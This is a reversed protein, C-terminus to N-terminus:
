ESFGGAGERTKKRGGRGILRGSERGGALISYCRDQHPNQAFFWSFSLIVYVAFLGAMKQGWGAMRPGWGTM